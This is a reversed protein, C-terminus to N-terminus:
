NMREVVNMIERKLEEVETENMHYVGVCHNILRGMKFKVAVLESQTVPLVAEKNATDDEM